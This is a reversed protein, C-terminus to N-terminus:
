QKAIILHSNKGITKWRTNTVLCLESLIREIEFNVFSVTVLQKQMVEPMAPDLTIVQGTIGSLSSVIDSLATNEYIISGTKWYLFNPDHNTRKVLSDDNLQGREGKVLLVSQKSDKSKAMKVRGETVIVNASHKDCKLDFATGLVTVVASQADITFPHAADHHVVFYAEGELAVDRRDGSFAKKYRIRSGAHLTVHTDDPLVVERNGADAIIEEMSGAGLFRFAFFGVLLVAAVAALSRVFSAISIVRGKGYEQKRNVTQAAVKDWARAIDFEKAKLVDDASRWLQLYENYVAQHGPEAALWEQLELEEGSAIGGSLKKAILNYIHENM